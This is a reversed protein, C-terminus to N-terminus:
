AARESVVQGEITPPDDSPATVIIRYGPVINNVQVLPGSNKELISAAELV